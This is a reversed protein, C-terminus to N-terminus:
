IYFDNCALYEVSKGSREIDHGDSIEFSFVKDTNHLITISLEEMINNIIERNEEIEFISKQTRIGYELLIRSVKARIRDKSIDYCIMFKRNM